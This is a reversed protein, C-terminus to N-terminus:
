ASVPIEELGVLVHIDHVMPARSILSPPTAPKVLQGILYTGIYNVVVPRMDEPDVWPECDKLSAGQKM